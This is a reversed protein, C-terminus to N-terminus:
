KTDLLSLMDVIYPNDKSGKKLVYHYDDGFGITVYSRHKLLPRIM